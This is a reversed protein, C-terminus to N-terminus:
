FKNKVDKRERLRRFLRLFFCFFRSLGCVQPADSSLLDFLHDSDEKLANLTTHM